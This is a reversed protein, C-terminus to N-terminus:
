PTDEAWDSYKSSCYVDRQTSYCGIEEGITPAENVIAEGAAMQTGNLYWQEAGNPDLRVNQAAEIIFIFSWGTTRAPFDWEDAGVSDGNSLITNKCEKALLTHPDSTDDLDSAEYVGIEISSLLYNGDVDWMAIYSAGDYVVYYPVSGTVTAPDWSSNDALYMANAVPSGPASTRIPLLFYDIFTYTGDGDDKLISYNTGTGDALDTLDVLGLIASVAIRSISWTGAPDDIALVHDTTLPTGILPYGISPGKTQETLDTLDSISRKKHICGTTFIMTFLFCAVLLLTIPKKM